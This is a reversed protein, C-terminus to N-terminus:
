PFLEETTEKKAEMRMKVRKIKLKGVEQENDLQECVPLQKDKSTMYALKASTAMEKKMLRGIKEYHLILSDQTYWFM